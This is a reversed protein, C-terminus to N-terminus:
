HEVYLLSVLLRMAAKSRQLCPHCLFGAIRGQNACAICNGVYVQVQGAQKNYAHAEINGARCRVLGVMVVQGQLLAHEVKTQLLVLVDGPPGACDPGPRRWAM